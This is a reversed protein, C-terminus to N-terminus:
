FILRVASFKQLVAYYVLTITYVSDSAIIYMDLDDIQPLSQIGRAWRSLNYSRVRHQANYASRGLTRMTPVVDTHWAQEYSDSIM